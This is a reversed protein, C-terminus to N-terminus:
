NKCAYSESRQLHMSYYAKASDADMYVTHVQFYM